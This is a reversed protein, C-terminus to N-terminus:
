RSKELAEEKVWAKAAKLLRRLGLECAEDIIRCSYGDKREEEWMAFEVARHKLTRLRTTLKKSV